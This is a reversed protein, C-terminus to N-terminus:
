RAPARRPRRSRPRCNWRRPSGGRIRRCGGRRLRRRGREWVFRVGHPAAVADLVPLVRPRWVTDLPVGDVRDAPDAAAEERVGLGLPLTALTGERLALRAALGAVASLPLGELAEAHGRLAALASARLWLASAEPLVGLADPRHALNIVGIQAWEAWPDGSWGLPGATGASPGALTHALVAAGPCAAALAALTAHREPRWRVGGALPSVWAGGGADAAAQLVEEVSLVEVFGAAPLSQRQAAARAAEGAGAECLVWPAAPPPPDPKPAATTM